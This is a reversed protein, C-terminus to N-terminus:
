PPTPNSLQDALKDTEACVEDLTWKRLPVESQRIPHPREFRWRNRSTDDTSQACNFGFWWLNKNKWISDDSGQKAFNLGGHVQVKVVSPDKGWCPHDKPVAVYGSYWGEFYEDDFGVLCKLGHHEWERKVVHM